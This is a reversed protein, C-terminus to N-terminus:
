RATKEPRGTGQDPRIGGIPAATARIQRFRLNARHRDLRTGDRPDDRDPAIDLLPVLMFDRETLGPHPITLKPDTMVVQDYLLIDIDLTRPGNVVGRTRGCREEVSGTVELLQEPLYETDVEVVLNLFDAQPVGGWAATLYVPSCSRVTLRTALLQLARSLNRRPGINSGLSLFATHSM